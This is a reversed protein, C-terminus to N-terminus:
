ATVQLSGNTQCETKKLVNTANAQMEALIQDIYVRKGTKAGPLM